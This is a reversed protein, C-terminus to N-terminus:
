HAFVIENVHAETYSFEDESLAIKYDIIEKIIKKGERRQGLVSLKVANKRRKRYYQSYYKKPLGKISIELGDIFICDYEYIIERNHYQEVYEDLRKIM